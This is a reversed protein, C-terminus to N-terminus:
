CCYYVVSCQTPGTKTLVPLAFEKSLQNGCIVDFHSEEHIDAILECYMKEVGSDLLARILYKQDVSGFADRFDVFVTYFRTSIHKFDDIETQMLFILEQRDRNEIYM